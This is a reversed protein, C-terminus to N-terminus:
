MPGFNLLRLEDRHMSCLVFLEMYPACSFAKINCLNQLNNGVSEELFIM